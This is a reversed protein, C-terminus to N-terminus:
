LSHEGGAAGGGQDPLLGAGPNKSILTIYRTIDLKVYPEVTPMKNWETLVELLDFDVMLVLDSFGVVAQQLPPVVTNLGARIFSLGQTAGVYGKDYM